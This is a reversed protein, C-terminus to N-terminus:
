LLDSARNTWIPGNNGETSRYCCSEQAPLVKALYISHESTQRQM